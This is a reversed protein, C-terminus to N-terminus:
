LLLVEVTSPYNFKETKVSVYGIFYGNIIALYFQPYAVSRLRIARPQSGSPSMVEFQCDRDVAQKLVGSCEVMGANTVKLSTNTTRATISVIYGHKLHDQM